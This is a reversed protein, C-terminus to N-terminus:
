DREGEKGGEMWPQVSDNRFWCDLVDPAPATEYPGVLPWLPGSGGVGVEWGSGAPVHVIATHQIGM